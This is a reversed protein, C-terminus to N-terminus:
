MVRSIGPIRVLFGGLAFSGAVALLSVAAYKAEPPWSVHRSALVLGVLVVQHVVFAAFAARSMERALRGQRNFRRRFMDLLWPSMTVVIAGEFVALVFSQWTGGGGFADLDGGGAALVGFVLTIGAVSAWAARRVRRALLPDLPRLWGCEGGLVGLSFGIVWAPAQGLALHWHEDGFRFVFRVVYSGLVILLGAAILHWPRIRTGGTARRPAVWWAAACVVSFLLLVGLFWTPGPAPPWWIFVTFALFGKDWGAADPDAYEVLPSLALIFFVMPLGLRVARDALFRGPGKRAISGPTFAGALLFFLPMGVLSGVLALLAMTSLLPERIPPEQFVWTGLDTWAMTAHAVIVGAVLVVKLNDAYGLRTGTAATGKTKVPTRYSLTM